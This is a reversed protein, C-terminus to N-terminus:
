SAARRAGLFTVQGVERRRADRAAVVAALEGRRDLGDVEATAAALEDDDALAWTSDGARWQARLPGRIDFYADGQIVADVPVFRGIPTLGHETFLTHLVDLPAFRRGVAAAAQPILSYYWYGARLQLQSATNIVLTGGPRLVRAFEAVVRRHATWGSDPDDGLHHLVQNVMVADVSADDLPLDDIAAQAFTVLGADHEAALKARAVALMADSADVATVHAVRPLVAAAYNGTGCGADLVDLDALPRAGSALCGLVLEVGFAWRTEDYATSRAAYNEYSSM